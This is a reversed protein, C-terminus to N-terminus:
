ILKQYFRKGLGKVKNEYWLTAEKLDERALPLIVVKFTNNM